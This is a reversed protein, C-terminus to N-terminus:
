ARRRKLALGAVGLLLGKGEGDDRWEPEPKRGRSRRLKAERKTAPTAALRQKGIDPRRGEIRTAGLCAFGFPVEFSIVGDTFKAM